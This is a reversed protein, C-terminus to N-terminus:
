WHEGDHGEGTPGDNGFRVALGALGFDPLPEYQSAQWRAFQSQRDACQDQQAGSPTIRLPTPDFAVTPWIHAGPNFPCNPPLFYCIGPGVFGAQTGKRLDKRFADKKEKEEAKEKAKEAKKRESEEKKQGEAAEKEERKKKQDETEKNSEDSDGSESESKKKRDKRGKGKKAAKKGRKGNTNKKTKM